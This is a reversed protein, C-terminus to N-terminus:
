SQQEDKMNGETNTYGKALICITQEYIHAINIWYDREAQLIKVQERFANFLIEDKTM